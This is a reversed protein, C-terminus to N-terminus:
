GSNHSCPIWSTPGARLSSFEPTRVVFRVSHGAGVAACVWRDAEETNGLRVHAEALAVMVDVSTPPPTAAQRVLRSAEDVNGLAALYGSLDALVLPDENWGDIARAAEVAQEYTKLVDGRRSALQRYSAALRGLATHRKPNHELAREYEAAAEGYRGQYFPATGLNEHAYEDPAISVLERFVRETEDVDGLAHLTAGLNLLPITNSPSLEAARDWADAALEYEGVLYHSGGLKNYGGWDDPALNTATRYARAAADTEGLALYADGLGRWAGAHTSDVHQAMQFRELAGNPDGEWLAALGASVYGEPHRPALRIARAAYRRADAIGSTDESLRGAYVEAEALGAWAPAFASDIALVERFYEAASRVHAPDLYERLELRGSEYPGAVRDRGTWWAALLALTAIVGLTGGTWKLVAPQIAPKRNPGSDAPGGGPTLATLFAEASPLREDPSKALAGRVAADVHEPVEPRLARLDPAEEYAAQYLVAQAYSAEFPRRGALMEFLVVGLAWVDARADVSEGRAQEPAMYHASGSVSGASTVTETGAVTAVGFDIVKVVGEPTVVVNSPKVDRHVVGAEHACRLGEAIQRALDVAEDVALPGADLRERLTPGDYRAMAIFLSGDPGEGIEHVIGVNPHDLLSAARAERELRARAEPDTRAGAPLVKLAVRRGLRVDEAEYVDGMGGKGLRGTVRYHSLTHGIM